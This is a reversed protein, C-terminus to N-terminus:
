EDIETSDVEFVERARQEYTELDVAATDAEEGLWFFYPESM